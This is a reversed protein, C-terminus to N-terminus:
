SKRFCSDQHEDNGSTRCRSCRGIQLWPKSQDVQNRLGYIWINTDFVIWENDISM